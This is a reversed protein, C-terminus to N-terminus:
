NKNHMYHLINTETDFFYLTKISYTNEKIYAYDGETIDSLTFKLENERDLARMWGIFDEAVKIVKDLYTEKGDEGKKLLVYNNNSKVADANNYSYYCYDTYDMFGEKDYYQQYIVSREEERIKQLIVNKANQAAIRSFEKSNIYTRMMDGVKIDPETEKAEKLSVQLAKDEVDEEKKVVERENYVLFECTDRDIEVKVNDSKGFHNKCATVLSNEIAEFLVEKSIDKEKELISLAEMLENNM